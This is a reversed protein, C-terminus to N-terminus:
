ENIKGADDMNGSVDYSYEMWRSLDEDTVLVSGESGAYYNDERGDKRAPRNVWRPRDVKLPKHGVSYSNTNDSLNTNVMRMHGYAVGNHHITGKRLQRKVIQPEETSFTSIPTIDEIDSDFKIGYINAVQENGKVSHRRLAGSLRAGSMEFTEGTVAAATEGGASGFAAAITGPAALLLGSVVSIIGAAYCSTPMDVKNWNTYLACSGWVSGSVLALGSMVATFGALSLLEGALAFQEPKNLDLSKSVYVETASVISTLFIAGLLIAINWNQGLRANM